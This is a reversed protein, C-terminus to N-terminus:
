LKQPTILELLKSKQSCLDEPYPRHFPSMWQLNGGHGFVVRFNDTLTPKVYHNRLIGFGLEMMTKNQAVM